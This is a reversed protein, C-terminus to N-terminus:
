FELEGENMMKQILELFDPCEQISHDTTSGHYQYFCKEQEKAEEEKRPYGALKGAKGLVEHVLKMPMRVDKVNRKVQMEQNSEVVNM